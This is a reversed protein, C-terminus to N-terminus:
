FLSPHIGFDRSVTEKCSKGENFNEMCYFVINRSFYLYKFTTPLIKIKIGFTSIM